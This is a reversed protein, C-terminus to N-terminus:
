CQANLDAQSASFWPSIKGWAFNAMLAKQSEHCGDLVESIGEQSARIKM